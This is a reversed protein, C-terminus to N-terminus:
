GKDESYLLVFYLNLSLTSITQRPVRRRLSVSTARLNLLPYTFFKNILIAHNHDLMCDSVMMMMM